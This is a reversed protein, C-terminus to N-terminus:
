CFIRWFAGFQVMKFFKRPPAYGRVGRAGVKVFINKVGGGGGGGGFYFGLYAVACVNVNVLWIVNGILCKM